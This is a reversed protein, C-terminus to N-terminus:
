SSLTALLCDRRVIVMSQAFFASALTVSSIQRVLLTGEAWNEPLWHSALFVILSLIGIVALFGYSSSLAKMEAVQHGSAHPPCSWRNATLRQRKVLMGAGFTGVLFMAAAVLWATMMADGAAHPPLWGLGLIGLCIAAKAAGMPTIFRNRKM